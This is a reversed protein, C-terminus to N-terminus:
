LGIRRRKRSFRLMARFHGRRIASRWLDAPSHNDQRLQDVWRGHPRGPRRKWDASSFRNLSLDVQLKLAQHALTSVPWTASFLLGGKVSATVLLHCDPVFSSSHTLSYLKVGWEVCYLDNRLRLVFSSTWM